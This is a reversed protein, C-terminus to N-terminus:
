INILSLHFATDFVAVHPVGPFLKMAVRIGAVNVPNHLPAFVALAEIDAAGEIVKRGNGLGIRQMAFVGCGYWGGASVEAAGVSVWWGIDEVAVGWMAKVAAARTWRHTM